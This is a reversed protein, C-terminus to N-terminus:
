PSKQSSSLDSSKAVGSKKHMSKIFARYIQDSYLKINDVIKSSKIIIKNDKQNAVQRFIESGIKFKHKYGLLHVMQNLKYTVKLNHLFAEDYKYVLMTNRIKQYPKQDTDLEYCKATINYWRMFSLGLAQQRPM